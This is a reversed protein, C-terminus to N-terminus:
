VLVVVNRCKTLQVIKKATLSPSTFLFATTNYHKMRKSLFDVLLEVFMANATCIIFDFPKSDHDYNELPIYDYIYAFAENMARRSVVTPPPLDLLSTRALIREILDESSTLYVDTVLFAWKFKPLFKATIRLSNVIKNELGSSYEELRSLTADNHQDIKSSLSKFNLNRLLEDIDM